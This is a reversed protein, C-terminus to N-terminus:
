AAKLRAIEDDHDRPMAAEKDTLVHPVEVAAGESPRAGLEQCVSVYRRHLDAKEEEM